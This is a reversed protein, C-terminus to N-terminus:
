KIDEPCPLQKKSNATVNILLGTCFDKDVRIIEKPENTLILLHFPMKTLSGFENAGVTYTESSM